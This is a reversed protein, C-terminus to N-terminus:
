VLHRVFFVTAAATAMFTATAVISRPSLRALGCIGHGSTCGQALARTAQGAVVDAYNV